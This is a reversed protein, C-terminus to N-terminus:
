ELNKAFLTYGNEKSFTYQWPGQKSNQALELFVKAHADGNVGNYMPRGESEREDVYYFSFPKEKYGQTALYEVAYATTVKGIGLTFFGPLPKENLVNGTFIYTAGGSGLKGQSELELFGKVAENAAITPSVANVNLRKQFGEANDIDLVETRGIPSTAYANYIVVDPIGVEKHVKEFLAAVHTPEAADFEFFPFKSSDLRQTRSAVAVKYGAAAFAEASASGVAAGVGIILAVPM